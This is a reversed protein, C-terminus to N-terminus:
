LLVLLVAMAIVAGILGVLLVYRGGDGTHGQRAKETDLVEHIPGGM